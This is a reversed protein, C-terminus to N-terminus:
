AIERITVQADDCLAGSTGLRTIPVIMRLADQVPDFEHPVDLALPVEVTLIHTPARREIM